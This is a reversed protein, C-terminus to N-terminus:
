GAYRDNKEALAIDTMTAAFSRAADSPPRTRPRTPSRRRRTAIVLLRTGKLAGGLLLVAGVAIVAAQLPRLRRSRLAM